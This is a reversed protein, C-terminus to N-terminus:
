PGRIADVNALAVLWAGILVALPAAIVRGYSRGLWATAASTWRGMLPEDRTSRWVLLGVWGVLAAWIVVWAWNYSLFALDGHVAHGIARTAGCAPCPVGTEHLLPCQWGGASGPTWFARLALLPVILAALAGLLPRLHRRPAALPHGHGHAHGQCGALSAPTSTM